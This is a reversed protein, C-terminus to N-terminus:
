EEEEQYEEDTYEEQPKDKRFPYVGDPFPTFPNNM